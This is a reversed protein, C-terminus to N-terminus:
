DSRMPEKVQTVEHATGQDRDQPVSSRRDTEHLFGIRGSYRILGASPKEATHDQQANCKARRTRERFFTAIPGRMEVEM